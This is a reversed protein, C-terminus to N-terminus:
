LKRQDFMSHAAHLCMAIKKEKMKPIVEFSKENRYNKMQGGVFCKINIIIIIININIQNM